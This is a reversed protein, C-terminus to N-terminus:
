GARSQADTNFRKKCVNIITRTAGAFIVGFAAIAFWCLSATPDEATIFSPSSLLLGGGLGVLGIIWVLLARDSGLTILAIGMLWPILAILLYPITGIFTNPHFDSPSLHFLFYGNLPIAGLLVFLFGCGLLIGEKTDKTM